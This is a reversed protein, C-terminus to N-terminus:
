RSVASKTTTRHILYGVISVFIACFLLGFRGNNTTSFIALITIFIGYAFCMKAIGRHRGHDVEGAESKEIPQKALHFFETVEKQRSQSQAQNGFIFSAGLYWLSGLTVNTITIATYDHSRAWAILNGIGDLPLALAWESKPLQTVVLGSICCLVITSWAAWDPSRKILLCWFLPVAYPTAVLASFNMMLQFVGLDKWSTYFLAMMIAMAGFALTTGRGAFVLERESAKPRLVPLYFSRVFIGANRNLGGDMSSLTASIIGTVLLGMLGAPLCRAAIAIYSMEAPNTIGEYGSIDLNTARAALPPIFWVISGVMFLIGSLAAAKRAQNGDVACLYRSSYHLGNNNTIKELVVAIIWWPGFGAISASLDWHTDPLNASMVNWGGAYQIATYAAILTIPVLVLAQIFDGAVVAWSGGATAVLVVIIGSVLITTHLGLGFVPTCFIALGYLWIGAQLIQFPVQLWTFIQENARGLRRRVAEMATVVRTNRSFKAFYLWNLFFGLGNCWFIVLVVFGHDYALGAAGTFTWASFASMFGSAGVMWWAMKGGGRFYESSDKGAHRFFWGIGLLFLLYFFVVAYDFNALM